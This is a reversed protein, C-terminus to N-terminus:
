LVIPRMPSSESSQLMIDHHCNSILNRRRGSNEIARLGQTAGGHKRMFKAIEPCRRPLITSSASTVSLGYTEPNRCLPCQRPENVVGCTITQWLTLHVVHALSMDWERASGWCPWAIACPRCWCVIMVSDSWIWAMPPAISM